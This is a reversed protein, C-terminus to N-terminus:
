LTLPSSNINEFPKMNKHKLTKYSKIICKEMNIQNEFINFFM